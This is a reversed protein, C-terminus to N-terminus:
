EIAKCIHFQSYSVSIVHVPQRISQREHKATHFYGVCLATHGMGVAIHGQVGQAIGQQPGQRQPIDSLMKGVCRVFELPYVASDQKLSDDLHNGICTPPHHVRIDRKKQLLRLYGRVDRLHTFGYSREETHLQIAEAYLGGGGLMEAEFSPFLPYRGVGYNQKLSLIAFFNM